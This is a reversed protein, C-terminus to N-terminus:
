QYAQLILPPVRVLRAHVPIFVQHETELPPATSVHQLLWLARRTNAKGALRVNQLRKRAASHALSVNLVHQMGRTFNTHVQRAIRALAVMQGRTAAQASVTLVTAAAAPLRRSPHAPFVLTPSPTRSRRVLSQRRHLGKASTALLAHLGLRTQLVQRASSGQLRVAPFRAVEM